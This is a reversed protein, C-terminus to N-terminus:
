AEGLHILLAASGFEKRARKVQEDELGDRQTRLVAITNQQADALDSASSELNFLSREVRRQVTQLM